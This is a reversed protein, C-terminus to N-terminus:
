KEGSSKILSNLIRVSVTAQCALKAGTLMLIFEFFFFACFPCLIVLTFNVIAM